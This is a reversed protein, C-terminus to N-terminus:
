SNKLTFVSEYITEEKAEVGKTKRTQRCKQRILWKSIFLQMLFNNIVVEIYKNFYLQVYFVYFTKKPALTQAGLGTYRDGLHGSYMVTTTTTTTATPTPTPTTTTTTTTTTMKYGATWPLVSWCHFASM